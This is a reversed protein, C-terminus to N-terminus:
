ATRQEDLLWQEFNTRAMISLVYTPQPGTRTVIYDHKADGSMARSVNSPDMKVGIGQLVRHVNGTTLPTEGVFWSVLKVKEARGKPGLIVKNLFQSYRPDNKM